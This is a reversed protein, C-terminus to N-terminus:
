KFCKWKILSLNNKQTVMGPDRWVSFSDWNCLGVRCFISDTTDYTISVKLALACYMKWKLEDCLSEAFAKALM